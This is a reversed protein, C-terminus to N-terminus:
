IKASATQPTLSSEREREAPPNMPTKALYALLLNAFVICMWGTFGLAHQPKIQILYICGPLNAASLLKSRGSIWYRDAESATGDVRSEAEHDHRRDVHQALLNMLLFVSVAIGAGVYGIRSLHVAVGAIGIVSVANLVYRITSKRIGYRRMLFFCAADFRRQVAADFGSFFALVPGM